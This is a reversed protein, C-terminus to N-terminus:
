DFVIDSKFDYVIKEKLKIKFEDYMKDYAEQSLDELEAIKKEDVENEILSELYAEFEDISYMNFRHAFNELTTAYYSSITQHLFELEKKTFDEENAECDENVDEESDGHNVYSEFEDIIDSVFEAAYFGIGSNTNWNSFKENMYRLIENLIPTDSYNEMVNYYDEHKERNSVYEDWYFRFNEMIICKFYLVLNLM